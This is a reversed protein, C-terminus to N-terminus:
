PVDIRISRPGRGEPIAVGAYFRHKNNYELILFVVRFPEVYGYKTGMCSRSSYPVYILYRKDKTIDAVNLEKEYRDTHKAIDRANAENFFGYLVKDIPTASRSQVTLTLPFRGDRITMAHAILFIVALVVILLVISFAATIRKVRM